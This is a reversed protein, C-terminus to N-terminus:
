ATGAGYVGYYTIPSNGEDAGDMVAGNKKRPQQKVGNVTTNKVTNSLTTIHNTTKSM